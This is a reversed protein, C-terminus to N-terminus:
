VCVEFILVRDNLGLFMDCERRLQLPFRKYHLFLWCENKDDRIGHAEAKTHPHQEEQDGGEEQIPYGGWGVVYAIRISSIGKTGEQSIIERVSPPIITRAMGSSLLKVPELDVASIIKVSINGLVPKTMEKSSYSDTSQIHLGNTNTMGGGVSQSQNEPQQQQQQTAFVTADDDVASVNLVAAAAAGGSSKCEKEGVKRKESLVVASENGVMFKSSSSSSYAPSSGGGATKLRRQNKELEEKGELLPLDPVGSIIASDNLPSLSHNKCEEENRRKAAPVVMQHKMQHDMQYEGLLGLSMVSNSYAAPPGSALKMEENNSVRSAAPLLEVEVSITGVSRKGVVMENNDNRKNNNLPGESHHHHNISKRSGKQQQQQSAGDNSSKRSSSDLGKFGGGGHVVEKIDVTSVASLSPSMLVYCLPVHALGAVRDANSVLPPPISDSEPTPPSESQGDVLLVDIGCVGESPQHSSSSSNGETPIWRSAVADSMYIACVTESSIITEGLSLHVAGHGKRRGGVAKENKSSSAHTSRRSHTHSNGGVMANNNPVVPFSVTMSGDFPEAEPPLRFRLQWGCGQANSTSSGFMVLRHLRIRLFRVSALAEVRAIDGMTVSPFALSAPPPSAADLIARLVSSDREVPVSVLAFSSFLPQQTLAHKMIVTCSM